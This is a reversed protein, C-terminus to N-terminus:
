VSGTACGRFRFSVNLTRLFAIVKKVIRINRRTM